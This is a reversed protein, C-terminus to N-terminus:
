FCMEEYNDVEAATDSPMWFRPPYRDECSSRRMQATGSSDARKSQSMRRQLYNYKYNSNRESKTEKLHVNMLIFLIVICSAFFGFVGLVFILAGVSDYPEEAIISCNPRVHASNVLSLRQSSNMASWEVHGPSDVEGMIDCLMERLKM